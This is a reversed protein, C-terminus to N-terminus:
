ISTSSRRGSNSPYIKSTSARPVSAADSVDTAVAIASGSGAGAEVIVQELPERRRGALAIRYGERLLALTVAKGIGSGAGTVIAIKGQTM